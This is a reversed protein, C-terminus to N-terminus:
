SVLKDFRHLLVRESTSQKNSKGARKGPAKGKLGLFGDRQSVSDRIKTQLGFRTEALIRFDSGFWSDGRLKLCPFGPEPCRGPESSRAAHGAAAVAM